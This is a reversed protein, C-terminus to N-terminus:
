KEGRGGLRIANFISPSHWRNHGVQQHLLGVGGAPLIGPVLFFIM